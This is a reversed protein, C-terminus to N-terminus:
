NTPIPKALLEKMAVSDATTLLGFADAVDMAMKQETTWNNYEELKNPLRIALIEKMAVSDATTLLGDGNVDGKVSINYNLEESGKTAKLKCNTKILDSGNVTNGNADHISTINSNGDLNAVILVAGDTDYITIVEANTDLNGIFENVTIGLKYKKHSRYEMMKKTDITPVTVQYIKASPKAAATPNEIEFPMKAPVDEKQYVNYIVENTDDLKSKLYLPEDADKKNEVNIEVTNNAYSTVHIIPTVTDNTIEKANTIILQTPDQPNEEFTIKFIQPEDNLIYGDPAKTEKIVYEYEGAKAPAKIELIKIKADEKTRSLVRQGNELGVTIEAERPIIQKTDADIKTLILNYRGRDSDTSPEGLVNTVNINIAGDTLKASSVNKGPATIVINSSNLVIKGEENQIFELKITIPEKNIVYGEPAMIEQLVYTVTEAQEPYKFHELNLRSNEDTEVYKVTGDPMTVKFIATDKIRNSNEDVKYINLIYEDEEPILTKNKNGLTFGLTDERVALISAYKGSIQKVNKILMYGEPSKEFEVEFVVEEPDKEYGEPVKTEKITYTYIGAEEPAYITRIMARGNFTEMPELTDRYTVVTQTGQNDGDNTDTVASIVADTAADTAANVDEEIDVDTEIDEDIDPTTPEEYNEDQKIEQKTITVEFEATDKVIKTGTDVDVKDIILGYTNNMGKDLPKLTVVTNDDNVDINVDSSYKQIVGSDKNRFLTIYKPIPDLEYGVPADIEKITINITGYGNFYTSYIKGQSNTIATWTKTEGFQEAVTIEYEAGPILDPYLGDDIDHKELVIQYDEVIPTNLIPIRIDRTGNFSNEIGTWNLVDAYESLLEVYSINGKLDYVVAIQVDEIQEYGTLENEHITYVITKGPYAKGITESTIGDVGTQRTEVNLDTDTSGSVTLIQSTVTFTAGRIPNRSGDDNQILSLKEITLGVRSENKVTIIIERTEEDVTVELGDNDKLEMSLISDMSGDPNATFDTVLKVQGTVKQSGPVYGYAFGKQSVDITIEGKDNMGETRIVGKEVIRLGGQEVEADTHLKGDTCLNQTVNSLTNTPLQALTDGDVNKVEVDFTSGNIRRGTDVDESVVKVTYKPEITGNGITTIVSRCNDNNSHELFAKTRLRSSTIINTVKGYIDYTVTVTQAPLLTQYKDNPEPESLEEFTYVVTTNQPAVGLDFYIIGDADTKSNETLVTEEDKALDKKTIKFEVDQLSVKTNVDQKILTLESKTENFFTVKVQGYEENVSVVVYTDDTLEIKYEPVSSTSNATETITYNTMADTNLSLSYVGIAAKEIELTVDNEINERYGEGIVREAIRIQINGNETLNALKTYGANSTNAANKVVGNISIDYKTDQIGLGQYNIDEDKVILDYTNDNPVNLIMHVYTDDMKQISTNGRKYITHSLNSENSLVQWSSIGGKSDYLVQIQFDQTKRYSDPAAVEHITYTVSRGQAEERFTDIQVIAYGRANTLINNIDRTRGNEEVTVKFQVDQIPENTLWDYKTIGLNVKEPMNYVRISATYNTRFRTVNNTLVSAYEQAYDGKLVPIDVPKGSSDFTVTFEIPQTLQYYGSAKSEQTLTYTVTKGPHVAGIYTYIKGSSNTVLNGVGVDGESSAMSFTVNDVKINNYYKDTLELEVAFKPENYVTIEIDKYLLSNDGRASQCIYDVRLHEKSYEDGAYATEITGNARYKVVLKLNRDLPKYGDPVTVESLTYEVTNNAIIRGAIQKVRSGANITYDTHTGSSDINNTVKFKASLKINNDYQDVKNIQMGMKRQLKFTLRLQTSGYCSEDVEAAVNDFGDKNLVRASGIRGNTDYSVEVEIYRFASESSSSGLYGGEIEGLSIKYVNKNGPVNAGWYTWSTYGNDNTEYYLQSRYEYSTSTQHTGGGYPYVKIEGIPAGSVADKVTISATTRPAYTVDIYLNHDNYRIYNGNADYAGAYKGYEPVIVKIDKINNNSYVEEVNASTVEGKENYWVSIKALKRDYYNGSYRPRYKQYGSPEDMEYIYIYRGYETVQEGNENTVERNLRGNTTDTFCLAKFNDITVTNKPQSRYSMTSHRGDSPNNGIYGSTVGQRDGSSGITSIQFNAPTYAGTYMDYSRVAIQLKPYYHITINIGYDGVKSVEVYRGDLLWGIYSDDGTRLRPGGVIKGNDDFDIDILMNYSDLGYASKIWEDNYSYKNPMGSSSTTLRLTRTGAGGSYEGVIQYDEAHALDPTGDGDSDRGSILTTAYNSDKTHGARERDTLWAEWTASELKKTDDYVDDTYIHIGFAKIEDNYITMDITYNDEDVNTIDIYENGSTVRYANEGKQMKGTEDYSIELKIDEPLWEYFPSKKTEKITYLMTSNDLTRDVKATVKGEQNTTVTDKTYEKDGLTGTVDFTVNKIVRQNNQMDVKTINFKMLPNSKLEINITFNDEITVIPTITSAQAVNDIKPNNTIACGTIYGDENFDVDLYIDTGFTQYGFAPQVEHITYRVTKDFGSKGVYALAMGTADTTGNGSTNIDSTISYQTGSLLKGDQRDVNKINMTVAKYNLVTLTIIGKDTKNYGYDSAKSPQIYGVTVFRNNPEALTVSTIERNEGYHVIIDFPDVEAYGYKAKTQTITYTVDEDEGFRGIVGKAQGDSNTQLSTKMGTVQFEGGQLVEDHNFYYLNTVTIPVRPEIAVQLKITKGQYSVVKMNPSIVIPQSAINGDDDYTINFGLNTAALYNDPVITQSVVYSRNINSEAYNVQINTEGKAEGVSPKITYEVDEVVSNTFKNVTEIEVNLPDLTEVNVIIAISYVINGNNDLKNAGEFHWQGLATGTESYNADTQGKLTKDYDVTGDAKFYVKVEIPTKLKKYYTGTNIETITYTIPSTKDDYIGGVLTNVEGNENTNETIKQAGSDNKIEFKFGSVGKFTVNDTTSIKFRFKDMQADYMNLTYQSQLMGSSSINISPEKVLQSRSGNYSDNEKTLTVENTYQDVGTVKLIMTDNLEYGLPAESETIYIVTDQPVYIGELEVVDEFVEVNSRVIKTGDPREIIIDYKAGALTDKTELDAKKLDLTLNGTVQGDPDGSEYTYVELNIDSIYGIENEYSSFNKTRILRNGWVTEVNVLEVMQTYENYKYTLRCRILNNDVTMEFEYEQEGPIRNGILQLNEFATYGVKPVDTLTLKTVDLDKGDSNLIQKIVTGNADTVAKNIITVAKGGIVSDSSKDITTVNINLLSDTADKKRNTHHYTITQGNMDAYRIQGEQTNGPRVEEPTHTISNNLLNVVIEQTPLDAKYGVKSSTQAVTIELESVKTKDIAVRTSIMGNADTPRGTVKKTNNGYKVEFDYKAGEIPAGTDVDTLAIQINYALNAKIDIGIEMYARHLKATEDETLQYEIKEVPDLDNVGDIYGQEDFHINFKIPAAIEVYGFPVANVILNYEYQGQIEEDITFEVEGDYNTELPGYTKGNTTNVLSFQVDEIGFKPLEVADIAKIKVTNREVKLSSETNVVVKDDVSQCIIDFYNTSSSNSGYAYKVEGDQRHINFEKAANSNQYGVAPSQEVIAIHVEGTGPLLLKIQGNEDTVNNGYSYKTNNSTTVTVNYNAGVIPAKTDKDTLNLELEFADSLVGKNGIGLQVYAENWNTIKVNENHRIETKTIKGENNFTLRLTVNGMSEYGTVEDMQSLIYDYTGAKTMVAPHFFLQGKEDTKGYLVDMEYKNNLKPQILRFETNSLKVNSNDLENLNIELDFGQVNVPFEVEVTREIDNPKATLGDGDVELVRRGLYDNDVIINRAETEEYGVINIIPTISYTVKGLTKIKEVEVYGNADTTLTDSYIINGESDTGEIKFQIGAVGLSTNEANVAKVLMKYTECVTFIPTKTQELKLQKQLFDKTYDVTIEKASFWNKFIVNRDIVADDKLTLKYKVSLTQNNAIRKINYSIVGDKSISIDENETLLEIDFYKVIDSTLKDKLEVDILSKNIYDAIKEEDINEFMYVQGYSSESPTGIENNTIDYLLTIVNIDEDVLKDLEEKISDTADTVLIMYRDSNQSTASLTGKATTIADAFSSGKGFVINNIANYITGTNRNLWAQVASNDSISINVKGSQSIITQSLLYIKEKVADLDVNEAM